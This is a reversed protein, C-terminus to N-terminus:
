TSNNDSVTEQHMGSVWLRLGQELPLSNSSAVVRNSIVPAYRTSIVQELKFCFSATVM